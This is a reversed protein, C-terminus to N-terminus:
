TARSRRCLPSRCGSPRGRSRAAPVNGPTLRRDDAAPGVAATAPISSSAWTSCPVSSRIDVWAVTATGPSTPWVRVPAPSRSSWVTATWATVPTVSSPAVWGAIRSFREDSGLGAIRESRDNLYNVRNCVEQEDVTTWWSRRDDPRAATSAETSTPECRGGAGRRRYSRPPPRYGARHLFEAIEEEPDDSPSRRTLDLARGSATRWRRRITSTTSRGPRRHGGPATAGVAGTARLQGPPHRDTPM